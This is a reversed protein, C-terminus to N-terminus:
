WHNAQCLAHAEILMEPLVAGHRRAYFGAANVIQRFALEPHTERVDRAAEFHLLGEYSDPGEAFARAVKWLSDPLPLDKDLQSLAWRVGLVLAEVAWAGKGPKRYRSIYTPDFIDNARVLRAVADTLDEGSQSFIHHTVFLCWPIDQDPFQRVANTAWAGLAAKKLTWAASLISCLPDEGDAVAWTKGARPAPDTQEIESLHSVINEVSATSGFIAAFRLLAESDERLAEVKHTIVERQAMRGAVFHTLDPAITLGAIM